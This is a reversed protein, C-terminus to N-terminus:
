GGPGAPGIPGQDIVPPRDMTGARDDGKSAGASGRRRDVFLVILVVVAVVGLIWFWIEMTPERRAAPYASSGELTRTPGLRTWCRSAFERVAKPLDPSRAGHPVDVAVHAIVDVCGGLIPESLPPQDSRTGYRSAGHDMDAHGFM